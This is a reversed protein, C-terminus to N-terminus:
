ARSTETAPLEVADFVSIIEQIVADHSGGDAELLTPANIGNPVKLEKAVKEARAPLHEVHEVHELPEAVAAVQAAPLEWLWGGAKTGVEKRPRIRLREKARNLTARRIGVEDAKAFLVPAPMACDALEAIRDLVDATVGKNFHVIGTVSVSLEQAIRAASSLVRRVDHDRHANVRGSLFAVLPDVAVFQTGTEIIRTRLTDEDDPLVLSEAHVFIIRDLDAGAATLRPVVTSAWDDEATALMCTIPTHLFEGTLTGRSLRALIEILLTSKGLGPQGALLSVAAILIRLHWAYTAQRAPVASASVLRVREADSM